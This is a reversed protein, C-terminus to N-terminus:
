QADRAAIVEVGQPPTFQFLADNIPVNRRQEEFRFEMVSADQGKVIVRVIAGDPTAAFRVERYPTNASKPIAVIEKGEQRVEAFLKKFDLRGLLFALPARLDESEKMDSYEARNAAPQYFWIRKGDSLFVKGNEYDWRMRGPKRLTLMGSESRMRGGHSYRQEFRAELTKASNYYREVLEPSSALLLLALIL